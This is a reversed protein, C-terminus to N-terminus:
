VGRGDRFVSVDPHQVRTGDPAWLSFRVSTEAQAAIRTPARRAALHLHVHQALSIEYPPAGLPDFTAEVFVRLEAAGAAADLTVSCIGGTCGAVDVAQLDVSLRTPNLGVPFFFENLFSLSLTVAGSPAVQAWPFVFPVLEGFLVRPGGDAEICIPGDDDVWNTVCVSAFEDAASASRFPGVDATCTVGSWVGPVPASRPANFCLPLGALGAAVFSASVSEGLVFDGTGDASSAPTGDTHMVSLQTFSATLAPDVTHNYVYINPHIVLVAGHMGDLAFEWPTERLNCAAWSADMGTVVATGGSFTLPQANAIFPLSAASDQATWQSLTLDYLPGAAAADMHATIYAPAAAVSELCFLNASSDSICIRSGHMAANYFSGAITYMQAIHKWEGDASDRTSLYLMQSTTSEAALVAGAHMDIFKIGYPFVTMPERMWGHSTREFVDFAAGGFESAVAVREGDTATLLPAYGSPAIAGYASVTQSLRFPLGSEEREFIHVRKLSTAFVAVNGSLHCEIGFNGGALALEPGLRQQYRWAGLRRTYVFAGGVNEKNSVDLGYMVLILTDDEILLRQIISAALPAFSITLDDRQTVTGTVPDYTFHSVYTLPHLYALFVDNGSVGIQSLHGTALAVSTQLDRSTYLTAEMPSGQTIVGTLDGDISISRAYGGATTAYYETLPLATIIDFAEAFPELGAVDPDNRARPNASVDVILKAEQDHVWASGSFIYQNDCYVQKATHPVGDEGIRYSVQFVYPFETSM